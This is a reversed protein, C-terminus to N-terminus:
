AKLCGVCHTHSSRNNARSMSRRICRLPRFGGSARSTLAMSCCHSSTSPSNWRPEAVPVEGTGLAQALDCTGTHDFVIAKVRDSRKGRFLFLDGGIPNAGLTEATIAYLGSFSRRTDVPAVAMFIQRDPPLELMSAELTGAGGCVSRRPRNGTVRLQRKGGLPASGRCSFREGDRADNIGGAARGPAGVVPVMRPPSAVAPAQLKGKWLTFYRPELGQARCYAAQTQGSKRQAAVHEAWSTRIDERRRTPSLRNRAM